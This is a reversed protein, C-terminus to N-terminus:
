RRKEITHMVYSLSYFLPWTKRQNIYPFIIKVSLFNNNRTHVVPRYIDFLRVNRGAALRFRFGQMTSQHSVKSPKEEQM